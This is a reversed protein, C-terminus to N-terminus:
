NKAVILSRWQMWDGRKISHHILEPSRRKDVGLSRSQRFSNSYRYWPRCEAFSQLRLEEGSRIPRSTWHGRFRLRQDLCVPPVRLRPGLHFRLVIGHAPAARNRRRSRSMIYEREFNSVAEGIRWRLAEPERQIPLHQAFSIDARSM